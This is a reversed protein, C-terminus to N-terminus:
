LIRGNGKKMQKIMMKRLSPRCIDENMSAILPRGTNFSAEILEGWKIADMEYKQYDDSDLCCQEYEDNKM